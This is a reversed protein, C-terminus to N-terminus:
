EKMIDERKLTYKEEVKRQKRMFDILNDAKESSGLYETFCRKYFNNTYNEYIKNKSPRISTNLSEIKYIPLDKKNINEINLNVIIENMLKDRENRLLKNKDNYEKIKNDYQVWTVIKQEM